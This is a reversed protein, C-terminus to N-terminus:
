QRVDFFHGYVWLARDVNRADDYNKIKGDEIRFKWKEENGEGYISSCFENLLGIYKKYMSNEKMLNGADKKEPLSGVNIISGRPIKIGNKLQHLKWAVLSAMAFRDYIPYEGETIFHFLTLLYVTGIGKMYKELGNYPERGNALNILSEWAENAKEKTESNNYTNRVGIIADTISKFGDASVPDQSRMKITQNVKWGEAYVINSESSQSHNIKGAKWALITKLYEEDWEEKLRYFIKNEVSIETRDYKTYFIEDKNDNKFYYESYKEIPKNIINGEDPIFVSIKPFGDVIGEYKTWRTANFGNNSM